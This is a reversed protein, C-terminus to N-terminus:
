ELSIPTHDKMKAYCLSCFKESIFMKFEYVTGSKTEPTWEPSLNRFTLYLLCEFKLNWSSRAKWRLTNFHPRM